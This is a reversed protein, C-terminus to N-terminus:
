SARVAPVFGDWGNSKPWSLLECRHPLRQESETWACTKRWSESGGSQKSTGNAKVFAIRLALRSWSMSAKVTVSTLRICCQGSLSPRLRSCSLCEAPLQRSRPLGPKPKNARPTEPKVGALSTNAILHYPRKGIQSRARNVIVEPPYCTEEQVIWVSSCGEEFDALTTETVNGAKKSNHIVKDDGCYIGHHSFWRYEVYIHDGPELKKTRM